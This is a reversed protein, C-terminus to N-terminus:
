IEKIARAMRLFIEQQDRNLGYYIEAIERAEAEVLTPRHVSPTEGAPYGAMGLLVDTPYEYLQAMKLLLDRKPKAPYNKRGHTTGREFDGLRAHGLGLLRAAERLSLSKLLRAQKLTPGLEPSLPKNM